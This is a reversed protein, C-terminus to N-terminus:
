KTTTATTITNRNMLNSIYPRLRDRVDIVLQGLDEDKFKSESLRELLPYLGYMVCMESFIGSANKAQKDLKKFVYLSAFNM